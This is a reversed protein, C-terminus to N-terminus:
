QDIVTIMFRENNVVCYTKYPILAMLNEGQLVFTTEIPYFGAITPTLNHVEIPSQYSIEVTESIKM